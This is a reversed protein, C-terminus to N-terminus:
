SEGKITNIIYTKCENIDTLKDDEIYSLIRNLRASVIDLETSFKICMEELKANEKLLNSYGNAFSELHCLVGFKDEAKNDIYDRKYLCNYKMEKLLELEKLTLINM